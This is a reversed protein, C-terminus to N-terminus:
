FGKGYVNVVFKGLEVDFQWGYGDGSGGVYGEYLGVIEDEQVVVDGFFVIFGLDFLQIFVYGCFFVFCGGVCNGDVQYVCQM